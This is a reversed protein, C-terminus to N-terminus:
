KVERKKEDKEYILLQNKVLTEAGELLNARQQDGMSIFAREEFSYLEGLLKKTYEKGYPTLSILKNRKDNEDLAMQIYGYKQITQLISNITQKPLLLRESIFQQTCIGENEHIMYFVFLMSVTLGHAKAWRDYINNFAFWLDYGKKIDEKISKAISVM